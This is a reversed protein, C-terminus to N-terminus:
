TDYKKNKLVPVASCAEGFMISSVVNQLKKTIAIYSSETISDGGCGKILVKKNKYNEKEISNINKIIIKNIVSKQDGFFVKDTINKLYTVILMYAWMPVINDVSSFICIIKNEYNLWNHKKLNERFLKERLTNNHLFDNIDLMIIKQSPLFSHLDITILNSKNIKNIIEEKM